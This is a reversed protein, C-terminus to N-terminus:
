GHKAEEAKKRLESIFADLIKVISDNLSKYAGAQVMHDIFAAQYEPLRLVFKRERLKAKKPRKSVM